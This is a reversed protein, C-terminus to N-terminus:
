QGAGIFQINTNIRLIYILYNSLFRYSNNDRIHLLPLFFLYISNLTRYYNEPHNM